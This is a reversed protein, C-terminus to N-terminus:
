DAFPMAPHILSPLSRATRRGNGLVLAFGPLRRLVAVTGWSLTLTAAFVFAVKALASVETGLLAYQLWISFLFHVLYIGYANDRLSDWVTSRSAAFRVTVALACWCNMFCAVVYAAATAARLPLSVSANMMTIASALLWLGFGAIAAVLARRWHRALLGNPGTLEHEIGCAGIVAGAFFYVAYQAPRSLQISIPGFQGWPFPGFLLALPIYGAASAAIVGAGFKWPHVRAAYGLRVVVDNARPFFSYIGAALIDAAFLVWLFWLPGSPWFPLALFRQWFDAFSPHTATQLYTPVTAIPLLVLVGVVFPLGIRLARESIFRAAGKRALCPWVFLGSVLFFTAMAFVDVWASFIDFGLPLRHADILPFSRWLWPPADFAGPTSPLFSFYPLLTHVGVVFLIIVSRLNDIAAISRTERPTWRPEANM